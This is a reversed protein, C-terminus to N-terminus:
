KPGIEFRLSLRKEAERAHLVVARFEAAAAMLAPYENGWSNTCFACKSPLDWAKQGPIWVAENGCKQCVLRISLVDEPGFVIRKEIMDEISRTGKPM